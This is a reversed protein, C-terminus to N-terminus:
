AALEANSVLLVVASMYLVRLWKGATTGFAIGEKAQSRNGM